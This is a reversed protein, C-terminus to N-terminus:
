CSRLSRVLEALRVIAVDRAVRVRVGDALVVEFDAAVQSSGVV